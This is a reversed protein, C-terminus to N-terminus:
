NVLVQLLIKEVSAQIEVIRGMCFGQSLFGKNDFLLEWPINVLREDIQIILYLADSESLKNKCSPPLLQDYLSRGEQKIKEYAEDSNHQQRLINDICDAIQNCQDNIANM